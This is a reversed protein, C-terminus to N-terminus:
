LIKENNKCKKKDLLNKRKITECSLPSNCKKYGGFVQSVKQNAKFDKTIQGEITVLKINIINPVERLKPKHTIIKTQKM